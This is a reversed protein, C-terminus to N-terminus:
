SPKESPSATTRTTRGPTSSALDAKKVGKLFPIPGISARTSKPNNNGRPGTGGCAVKESRILTAHVGGYIANCIRAYDITSQAM